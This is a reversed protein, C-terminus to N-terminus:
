NGAFYVVLAAATGIVAAYTLAQPLWLRTAAKRRRKSPAAQFSGFPRVSQETAPASSALAPARGGSDPRRSPARESRPVQGVITGPSASARTESAVAAVPAEVTITTTGVVLVAGDKVRTPGSIRVGDVRTGNRSGLDEVEVADGVLRVAVHRRSCETDDLELDAQERGIVLEGEVDVRRGEMPGSTILLSPM